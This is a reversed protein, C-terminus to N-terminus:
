SLSWANGVLGDQNCIVRSSMSILTRGPGKGEHGGKNVLDCNSHVSIFQKNIICAMHNLSSDKCVYTVLNAGSREM